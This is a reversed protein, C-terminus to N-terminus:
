KKIEGKNNSCILTIQKAAQFPKISYGCKNRLDLTLITMFKENVNKRTDPHNNGKREIDWNQYGDSNPSQKDLYIDNLIDLLVLKLIHKSRPLPFGM